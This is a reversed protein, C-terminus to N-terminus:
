KYIKSINSISQFIVNILWIINGKGINLILRRESEPWIVYISNKKQKKKRKWNGIAVIFTKFQKNQIEINYLCIYETKGNSDIWPKKKWLTPWKKTTVFNLLICTYYTIIILVCTTEIDALDLCKIWYM